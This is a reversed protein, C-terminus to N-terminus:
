WLKRENGRHSNKYTNRQKCFLKPIRSVVETKEILSGDIKINQGIEEAIQQPSKKLLKALKFCPFAYDGQKKDKPMEINQILEAEEINITQAIAKAIQTKFDIM